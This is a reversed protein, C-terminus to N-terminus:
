QQVVSQYQSFKNAYVSIYKIPYLPPRKAAKISIGFDCFCMMLEIHVFTYWRSNYQLIKNIQTRAGRGKRSGVCMCVHVTEYLPLGVIVCLCM